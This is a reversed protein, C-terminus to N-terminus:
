EETSKLTYRYKQKLWYGTIFKGIGLRHLYNKPDNPYEISCDGFEIKWIQPAVKELEYIKYKSGAFKLVKGDKITFSPIPSIFGLFSKEDPTLEAKRTELILKLTPTKGDRGYSIGVYKNQYREFTVKRLVKPYGLIFRGFLANETTVPVELYHWALIEKGNQSKKYKVLIEIMSELYPPASEMKYYDIVRVRCLPREPMSFISPILKKYENINNVEFYTVIAEQELYIHPVYPGSPRKVIEESDTACGYYSFMFILILIIKAFKMKTM